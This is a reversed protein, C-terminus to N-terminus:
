KGEGRLVGGLSGKVKKIITKQDDDVEKDTLTRDSSQYIFRISVSKEGDELGKGRYIDVVEASKRIGLKIEDITAYIKDVTVGEDIDFTLDRESAPFKPISQFNKLKTLSSLVKLDLEFFCVGKSKVKFRKLGESALIVFSGLEKQGVVVRAENLKEERYEVNKINLSYLLTEITGKAYRFVSESDGGYIMGSLKPVEVNKLYVSAVEYIGQARDSKYDKNKAVIDLMSGVLDVRMYEQEQSIPNAIRIPDINKRYLNTKEKSTFSYSCVENVGLATMVNRIKASIEIKENKEYVPLTGQPLTSPINEYGYIRAVEELLDEELSVDLRLDPVLFEAKEKSKSITKFGLSELIRVAKDASIDEGLFSKIRDFRLTVKKEKDKKEGEDVRGALVNGGSIESILAAARDAAQEALVIPLGKEFRASSESRLALKLATKRIAIPHFNASELIITKTDETVESNAGGMVGAIAIAKDKDAIVLDNEDLKRAVGDLTEIEEGKKARRIIIKRLKSNQIKFKSNSVSKIKEFDFAHLPQGTELMVYNTVDVVNNIPRVGSASLRDQIWKPSPGIKVDKIVRAVYRRCLNKDKIEVYVIDSAKERSETIKVAPIKMKQGTMVSVERAVGLMSLCDGRNPTIEAELITDGVNLANALKDGAKARPDLVMIGSHDDSIGLEAESCLMGHSRVGRIEAEKIEFEGIQTGVLAVPVKQGVEINPAGCVIQLSEKGVSTKTVQLKDANPHKTIELIEGVVIGEFSGAEGRLIENETGSMTLKDSLERASIKIDVYEKLWNIPVRM